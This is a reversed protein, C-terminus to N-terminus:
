IRVLYYNKADLSTRMHTLWGYIKELDNYGALSM